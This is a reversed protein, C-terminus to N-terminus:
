RDSFVLVSDLYAMVEDGSGRELGIGHLFRCEDLSMTLDLYDTRMCFSGTYDVPLARVACFALYCFIILTDMFTEDNIEMYVDVFFTNDAQYVEYNYGRLWEQDLEIEAVLEKVPHHAFCEPVLALLVVGIFAARKLHTKM